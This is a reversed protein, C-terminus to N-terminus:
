CRALPRGRVLRLASMLESEDAEFVTRLDLILRDREIRGIVPPTGARLRREVDAADECAMAMVYTAMPQEPTAGGGIVSEGAEVTVRPDALEGAFRQARERIRAASQRIM